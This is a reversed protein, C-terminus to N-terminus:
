LSYTKLNSYIYYLSYVLCQEMFVNTNSHQRKELDKVSIEDGVCERVASAIVEPDPRKNKLLTGPLALTTPLTLGYMRFALITPNLIGCFFQVKRLKQQQSRAFNTMSIQNSQSPNTMSCVAGLPDM